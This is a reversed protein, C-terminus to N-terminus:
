LQLHRKVRPTICSSENFLVKGNELDIELQTALPLLSWHQYLTGLAKNNGQELSKGPLFLFVDAPLMCNPSHKHLTM